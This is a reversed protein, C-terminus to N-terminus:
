AVACKDGRKIKLDQIYKSVYDDMYTKQPEVELENFVYFKFSEAFDERLSTNAYSSPYEKIELNKWRDIEEETIIVNFVHHGLEHYFTREIDDISRNLAMTITMNNKIKDYYGVLSYGDVCKSNYIVLYSIVFLDATLCLVILIWVIVTNKSKQKKILRM